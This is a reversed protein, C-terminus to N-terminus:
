EEDYELPEIKHKFFNRHSAERYLKDRLSRTLLKSVMDLEISNEQIKIMIADIVNLDVNRKLLEEVSQSFDSQDLLKLM